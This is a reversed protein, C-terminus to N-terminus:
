FSNCVAYSLRQKENPQQMNLVLFIYVSQTNRKIQNIKTAHYPPKRLLVSTFVSLFITVYFYLMHLCFLMTQKTPKEVGNIM